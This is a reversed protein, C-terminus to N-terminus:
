PQPKVLGAARALGQLRTGSPQPADFLNNLIAPYARLADLAKAWDEPRDKKLREAEGLCIALYAARACDAAVGSLDKEVQPLLQTKLEDLRDLPQPLPEVNALTEAPIRVFRKGDRTFEEGGQERIVQRAVTILRDGFRTITEDQPMADRSTNRYVDVIKWGQAEMWRRGRVVGLVAGVSAATCDADWGFNFALRLSEAFDGGGYLLPGVIAATNLEYGNKDRLGGGHRTYKEKILRRTARWDAPNERHWRIVDEIVERLASKPDVATLGAEVIKAADTEVYATAIMATVFQTQQAPEGDIAVHTYHLGLRGATQPMAPAVLGFSEALFAGSINFDAWPNLAIRGTLPPEMGLEMLDRAYRNACWICRNIHTRWLERMRRPPTFLVGTRAMETIYTWEIDTDDDTRAGEPLGPVYSEVAGPEDIFKMEYPMGNLNGLIQGVLGGRVKDELVDAPIEIM